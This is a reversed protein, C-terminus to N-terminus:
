SKNKLLGFPTRENRVGILVFDPARGPDELGIRFGKLTGPKLTQALLLGGVPHRLNEAPEKLPMLEEGIARHPAIERHDAALSPDLVIPYQQAVGLRGCM